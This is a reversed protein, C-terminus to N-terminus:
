EDWTEVRGKEEIIREIKLEELLKLTDDDFDDDQFYDPPIFSSEPAYYNM